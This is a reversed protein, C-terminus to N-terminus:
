QYKDSPRSRPRQGSTPEESAKASEQNDSLESKINASHKVIETQQQPSTDILAKATRSVAKVEKQEERSDLKVVNSASQKVAASKKGGEISNESQRSETPQKQTKAPNSSQRQFSAGGASSHSGNKLQRASSHAVQSSAAQPAVAQQELQMVAGELHRVKENLEQIRKDKQQTSSELACKRTVLEANQSSIKDVKQAKQKNQELQSTLM